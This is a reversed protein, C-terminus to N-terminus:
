NTVKKPADSDTRNALDLIFVSGDDYIAKRTQRLEMYQKDAFIFSDYQIETRVSRQHPPVKDSGLRSNILSNKGYSYALYRISHGLLYSALAEANQNIPWGPPLGACGPWDALLIHNDLPNLLYPKQLTTLILGEPPLAASVNAYERRAEPTAVPSDAWSTQIGAWMRSFEGPNGHIQMSASLVLLLVVSAAQLYPGPKWEPRLHRELSFQLFSLLLAPMVMPFSYRRNYDGGTALDTAMTGLLCGVTAAFLVWTRRDRRSIFLQTCAIALMPLFYVSGKWLGHLPNPAFTMAFDHYASFDYGSGLLPYLYTGSTVRMAIMWPALVLVLALLAFAGAKVALKWGRQFVWLLHIGMAFFVAHPLYTSKLSCIAATLLGILFSQAAPRAAMTRDVAVAVIALFLPSPLSSFTLNVAVAPIGVSFVAFIATEIPTLEWQRALALAILAILVVGLYRDAMQVNELPLVSLVMGQLFYNGGVSGEIRRESFPDPAFSHEVMMKVPAALYFNEDDTVHYSSVRPTSAVRFLFLLVFCILAVRTWMAVNRWAPFMRKAVADAGDTRLRPSLGAALAVGVLTLCILAWGVILHLFNFFGGIFVCVGVGINAALALSPIRGLTIKLALQGWGILAVVLVAGWAQASLFHLIAQGM